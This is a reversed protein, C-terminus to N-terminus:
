RSESTTVSRCEAFLDEGRSWRAAADPTNLVVHLACNLEYLDADWGADRLAEMLGAEAGQEAIREDLDAEASIRRKVGRQQWITTAHLPRCRLPRAGYAMCVSDPGLLPCPLHGTKAGLLRKQRDNEAAVQLVYQYQDASVNRQLYEALELAEPATLRIEGQGEVPCAIRMVEADGEVGLPFMGRTSETHVERSLEVPTQSSPAAHLYRSAIGAVTDKAWWFLDEGRLFTPDTREQKRRAASTASFVQRGIGGLVIWVIGALVLGIVLLVGIMLLYITTMKAGEKRVPITLAM